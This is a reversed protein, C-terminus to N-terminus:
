VFLLRQMSWKSSKKVNCLWCACRVNDWEHGRVGASLPFPHHDITPSSPHPKGEIFQFADLTRKRCIHCRYRDREFVKQSTVAPDYPVNYLRCRKRHNERLRYSKSKRAKRRICKQCRLRPRGAISCLLSAGCDICERVVSPKCACSMSCCKRRLDTRSKQCVPCPM